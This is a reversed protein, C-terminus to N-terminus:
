QSDEAVFHHVIQGPATDTPGLVLELPQEEYDLVVLESDAHENIVTLVYDLASHNRNGYDEFAVTLTIKEYRM